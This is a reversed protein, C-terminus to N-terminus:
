KILNSGYFLKGKLLNVETERAILAASKLGM